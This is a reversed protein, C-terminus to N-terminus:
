RRRERTSQVIACENKEEYFYVCAACFYGRSTDADKFEPFEIYRALLKPVKEFDTGPILSSSQEVM